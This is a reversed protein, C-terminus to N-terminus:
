LQQGVEMKDIWEKLVGVCLRMWQSVREVQMVDVLAGVSLEPIDEKKKVSTRELEM